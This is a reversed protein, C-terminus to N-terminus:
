RTPLTRKRGAQCFRMLLLQRALPLAAQGADQPSPLTGEPQVAPPVDLTVTADIGCGLLVAAAVLSLCILIIKTLM